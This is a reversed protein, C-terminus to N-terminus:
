DGYTTYNLLQKQKNIEQQRQYYQYIEEMTMIQQGNFEDLNQLDSQVGFEAAVKVFNFMQFSM